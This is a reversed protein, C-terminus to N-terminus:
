HMPGLKSVRPTQCPTAVIVLDTGALALWHGDFRKRGATKGCTGPPPCLVRVAIMRCAHSSTSLMPRVAPVQPLSVHTRPSVREGAVGQSTCSSNTESQLDVGVRHSQEFEAVDVYPSRAHPDRVRAACAVARSSGSRRAPSVDVRSRALPGTCVNGLVARRHRDSQSETIM